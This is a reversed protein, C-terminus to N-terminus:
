ANTGFLANVLRPNVLDRTPIGYEQNIQVARDLPVFGKQVWRNVVQHKVGILRALASISGAKEVAADLATPERTTAM